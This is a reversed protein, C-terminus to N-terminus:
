RNTTSKTTTVIALVVALIGGTLKGVIMAFVMERNIGAVFGLHSGFVFAGSVAFAINIVKGREDMNKLMTLMPIHHALSAVLGATATSNIGLLNGVKGLHKKFIKTIIAVMPFAGVLVIAIMGVIQIGESIPSMHPIIILGTLTEIIIATLSIIALIEICKGFFHFGKIMKDSAKWLGIAIICSFIVTPILNAIIINLSINAVLGGVFCGFPVTIIGLLIGKAFYPYDEKEIIGMAVPITFVITPGMMTGLFVWSFLEAEPTLAMEKALAYGGMDLALLTNAFSSPDAGMLAYIPTIVPILFGSLVPAISIIGVMSMTLTGMAMFGESFKQGLGMRNGICKDIAGLCLFFVMIYVIIDNIGM